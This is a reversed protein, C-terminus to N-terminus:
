LDNERAAGGFTDIARDPTQPPSLNGFVGERARRFMIGDQFGAAEDAPFGGRINLFQRDIAKASEIWFRDRGTAFEAFRGEEAQHQGVVFDTGNMGDMTKSFRGM